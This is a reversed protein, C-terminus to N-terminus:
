TIQWVWDFVTAPWKTAPSLAATIQSQPVGLALALAPINGHHWCILVAVGGYKSNSLIDSAVKGYDKDSHKDDIPLNLIQSTPTITEIPRNSNTSTATAFLFAPVPFRPAAVQM